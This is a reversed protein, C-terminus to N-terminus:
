AARIQDTTRSLHYSTFIVGLVMGGAIAAALTGWATVKPMALNGQGVRIGAMYLIGDVLIVAIVSTLGSGAALFLSAKWNRLILGLVLGTSIAVCLVSCSLFVAFRLHVPWNLAPNQFWVDLWDIPVKGLFVGVLAGVAIWGWRRYGSIRGLLYAWGLLGLSLLIAPPGVYLQVKMLFNHLPTSPGDESALPYWTNQLLSLFPDLSRSPILRSVLLVWFMLNIPFGLCLGSALASQWAIRFPHRPQGASSEIWDIMESLKRTSIVGNLSFSNGINLTINQFLEIYIEFPM